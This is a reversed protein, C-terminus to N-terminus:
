IRAFVELLKIFYQFFIASEVLVFNKKKLLIFYLQINCTEKATSHKTKKNNYFYM